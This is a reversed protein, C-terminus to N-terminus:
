ADDDLSPMTVEEAEAMPPLNHLLEVSLTEIAPPEPFTVRLKLVYKGAINQPYRRTIKPSHWYDFTVYYTEVSM